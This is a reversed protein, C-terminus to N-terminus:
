ATRTQADSAKRADAELAARMAETSYHLRSRATGEPIGLIKAIEATSFGSYYHLVIVARQDPKLRSFGRALQDRDAVTGTDDGISPELLLPRLQLSWRRLQRGQDACANVLLRHLWADFRDPDRLSPLQRWARVLAEQVADEALDSSRLILRAVAYLRDGASTALVEFADHDGRAAAEVLDRRM